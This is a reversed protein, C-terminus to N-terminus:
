ICSKHAWLVADSVSKRYRVRVDAQAIPNKCVECFVRAIEGRAKDLSKRVRVKSARTRPQQTAPEEYVVRPLPVIMKRNKPKKNLKTPTNKKISSRYKCEFLIRQKVSELDVIVEGNTFRMIKFGLKEIERQRLSDSDRTFDHSVGDIEVILSHELCAFDVIYPYIVHQAYFRPFNNNPDTLAGNLKLEAATMNQRMSEARRLLEKHKKALDM